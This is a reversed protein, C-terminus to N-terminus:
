NDFCKQPKEGESSAGESNGVQSGVPASVGKGGKNVPGTSPSREPEFDKM